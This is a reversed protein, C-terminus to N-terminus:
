RSTELCAAGAGTHAAVETMSLDTVHVQGALYVTNGHKVAQSMRKGPQYRTISM